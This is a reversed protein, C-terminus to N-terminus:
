VSDVREFTWVDTELGRRANKLGAAWIWRIEVMKPGKQSTKLRKSVDEVTPVWNRRVVDIGLEGCKNEFGVAWKRVKGGMKLGKQGNKIKKWGNKDNQVTKLFIVIM